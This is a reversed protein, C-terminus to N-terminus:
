IRDGRGSTGAARVLAAVDLRKYTAWPSGDSEPALSIPGVMGKLMLRVKQTARADGAAFADVQKLYAATKPLLARVLARDRQAPQSAKLENRKAEIAVEGIACGALLM